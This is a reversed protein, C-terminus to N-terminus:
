ESIGLFALLLRGAGVGVALVFLMGCWHALVDGANAPTACRSPCPCPEKGQSCCDRCNM